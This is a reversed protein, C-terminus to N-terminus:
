RFEGKRALEAWKEVEGSMVKLLTGPTPHRSVLGAENLHSVRTSHIAGAASMLVDYRIRNAFDDTMLLGAQHLALAPSICRQRAAQLTTIVRAATVAELPQLIM